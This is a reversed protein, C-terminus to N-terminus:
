GTVEGNTTVRSALAALAAKCAARAWGVRSTGSGIHKKEDDEGLCRIVCYRLRRGSGIPIGSWLDVDLGMSELKEVVDLWATRDTSYHPVDSYDGWREWPHDPSIRRRGKEPHGMVEIHIEIDLERNSGM